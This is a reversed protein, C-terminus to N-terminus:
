RGLSGFESWVTPGFGGALRQALASQDASEVSKVEALDTLEVDDDASGEAAGAAHPLTARRRRGTLLASVGRPASPVGRHNGAGDGNGNTHRRAPVLSRAPANSVWAETLTLAVLVSAAARRHSSTMETWDPPSSTVSSAFVRSFGAIVVRVQLRAVVRRIRGLSETANKQM